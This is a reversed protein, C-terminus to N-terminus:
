GCHTSGRLALTVPITQSDVPQGHLQQLLADVLLMGAQRTDQQVTSLAPTVFGALPIDDFGAVAVQEPIRLGAERLAKMAGIAILDSARPTM